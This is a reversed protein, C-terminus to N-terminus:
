VEKWYRNPYHRAADQVELRQMGRAAFFGIADEQAKVLLGNRGERLAAQEAQRLLMRGIGRHHCTPSVYLGHLLLGSLRQPTDSDDAPEWAAVGLIREDPDEAVVMGFHELDLETYRYSPLSLRKVREPLRWTMVAAEIVRNIAPLDAEVAPRIAIENPLSM